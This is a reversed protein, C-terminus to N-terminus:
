NSAYERSEKYFIPLKNKRFDQVEVPNKEFEVPEDDTVERDTTAMYGHM